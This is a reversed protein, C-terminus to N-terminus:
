WNLEQASSKITVNALLPLIASIKQPLIASIKQLTLVRTWNQM